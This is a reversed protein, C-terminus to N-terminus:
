RKRLNEKLIPDAEDGMVERATCKWGKRKIINTMGNVVIPSDLNANPGDVVMVRAIIPDNALENEVINKHKSIGRMDWSSIPHAILEMEMSIGPDCRLAEDM